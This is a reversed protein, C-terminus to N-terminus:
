FSKTTDIYELGSLNPTYYIQGYLICAPQVICSDIYMPERVREVRYSNSEIGSYYPILTFRYKKNEEIKKGHKQNTSVSIVEYEWNGDRLVITYLGNGKYIHAVTATCNISKSAIENPDNIRYDTLQSLCFDVPGSIGHCFLFEQHPKIHYVWTRDKVIGEHIKKVDKELEYAHNASCGWYVLPMFILCIIRKKMKHIVM